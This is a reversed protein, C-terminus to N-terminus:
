DVSQRIDEILKIADLESGCLRIMTELEKIDFGEHVLSQITM